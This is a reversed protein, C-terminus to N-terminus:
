EDGRDFAMHGAGMSTPKPRSAGLAASDSGHGSAPGALSAPCSRSDLDTAGPSFASPALDGSTAGRYWHM